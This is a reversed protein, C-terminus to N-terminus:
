AVRIEIRRGLWDALRQKFETTNIPKSMYSDMGQNLYRLEDGKLAHATVAVITTQGDAGFEKELDRIVSTAEIGNMKPMSIDMLVLKPRHQKWLAVAKEGDEAIEFAVNLGELISRMLRQNVENDEAIILDCQVQRQILSNTVPEPALPADDFLDIEAELKAKSIGRSIEDFLQSSRAPKTLYASVQLDMLRRNLGRSDISSLMIVPTNRYTRSRRIQKLVDEGDMNPMQYDLIILDIPISKKEAEAMYKLGRLGSEVCLPRCKWFKLQEDLINRNVANDDIVLVHSGAVSAIPLKRPAVTGPVPLALTILFKSGRNVESTVSIQGEMLQVLRKTIALGLGTGDFNRSATGDVQSFKDFIRELHEAPIGIGTDEVAIQLRADPGTVQGTVRVVVHGASTFKVANGVLNTLIQRVRGADGVYVDPLNPDMHVLLDVNKGSAQTSMLGVSNEICERLDFPQPLLELRGADIKSFDLIDNIITLLANGSTMITDVFAEERAQLGADSLLQAMGLVGNLPTRIEHSMNALFESKSREALEAKKQAMIQPTIDVFMSVHGGATMSNTRISVWSRGDICLTLAPASLFASDSALWEPTGDELEIEINALSDLLGQCSAGEEIAASNNPFLRLMSQNAKIISADGDWIIIGDETSNIASDLVAAAREAESKAFKLADYTEDYAAAIKNFSSALDGNEAFGAMPAKPDPNAEKSLAANDLLRELHEEELAEEHEAYDLGLREHSAGVRLGLSLDLFKFVIFGAGLGATLCLAGGLAQIGVQAGISGAPLTTVAFLPFLLSGLTGAFGHAAIAGVPDDLKFRTILLQNGFISILGGAGGIVLAGTTGIMHACSTTAVLGGLIGNYTAVPQMRGKTIVLGALMGGAGGAVGALVTNLAITSFVDSGPLTGGTNFPIWCVLLIIVGTMALVPSSGIIQRPSGGADFRGLRPGILLLGALGFWAGLAHVTTGGALDVFGLDSLFAPNGAIIKNGWVLHGFMPYILASLIITGILYPFLKMRESIIGSVITAAVGCFTLQFLIHTSLPTEGVRDPLSGFGFYGTEGAGFMLSFGILVFVSASLVFDSVNKQAVNMANKSRVSGAELLLFGVQMLLVFVAAVILWVSLTM